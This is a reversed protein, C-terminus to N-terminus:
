PKNKRKSTTKTYGTNQFLTAQKIKLTLINHPKKNSNNMGNNASKNITRPSKCLLTLPLAWTDYAKTPSM